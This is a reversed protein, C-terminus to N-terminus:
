SLTEPPTIIPGLIRPRKSAEALWSRIVHSVEVGSIVDINFLSPISRALQTIARIGDRREFLYELIQVIVNNRSVDFAARGYMGKITFAALTALNGSLVHEARFIELAQAFPWRRVDWDAMEGAKVITQSNISTADFRYGLLKASTTLFEETSIIGITNAHYVVLQTWVRRVGFEAAAIEANLFEETWLIHGPARALLMSEVADQGLHECLGERLEPDLEAMERCGRQECKAFVLEIFSRAVEAKAQAEEPSEPLFFYGDDTKGFAGRQKTPGIVEELITRLAAATTQSIVLKESWKELLENLRLLSVSALATIDLVLTSGSKLAELGNRQDYLRGPHNSRIHITPSLAAFYFAEFTSCGIAEGLNHLSIPQDPRQAEFRHEAEKLREHREDAILKMDTMDFQKGEVSGAEKAVKFVQIFFVNPFRIQWNNSIDRMRYVYKPFVEIVTGIRDRGSTKAILFSDGVRKGLLSQSLQHSVPYEDLASNPEPSDEIIIWKEALDGEAYRVAMGPRVESCDAFVPQRSRYAMVSMVLTQNALHHEYHRRYLEYAFRVAENPDGYRRLIEVVIYGGYPTADDISLLKQPESDVLEKRHLYLGIRSLHLRAAKDEPHAALHEQLLTIGREVDFMELVALEQDFLWRDEVGAERAEQCTRLVVGYQKVREACKVLPRLNLLYDHSANLRQWIPLADKHRELKMLFLALNRLDFKLSDSSIARIAEDAFTTASAMDGRALSLKAGATAKSIDSFRGEPITSLFEEADNARSEDILCDILNNFAESRISNLLGSEPQPQSSALSSDDTKALRTFISIAEKMDGPQARERLTEGLCIEAEAGPAISLSKRLQSIAEDDRRRGLLYTAFRLYVTQNGPLWKIAERFDAEANEHDDRLSHALGRFVFCEAVNRLTGQSDALTVTETLATISKDIYEDKRKKQESGILTRCRHLALYVLAQGLISKPGVWDPNAKVAKSAFDEAEEYRKVELARIALAVNVQADNETVTNLQGRLEELSVKESATRIWCSVLPGSNPYTGLLGEALEHAAEGKQLLDYGIAENVLARESQPQHSKAEVLIRGAELDNGQKIAANALTAKVRYKQPETLADWHRKRIRELHIRGVQPDNKDIYSEAEDIEADFQNAGSVAVVEEVKAIVEGRLSIIQETIQIQTSEINKLSSNSVQVLQNVVDPYDDLLDEIKEWHFLEVFMKINKSKHEKNIRIIANQAQTSAWATTLIAYHDLPPDFTLAKDVEEQIEKPPISKDPEHHKCQGAKFPTSCEMDIIDVGYQKEGRKGYLELHPNNWHRQLFRLCFKEFTRENDPQPYRQTM